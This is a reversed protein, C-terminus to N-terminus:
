LDPQESLQALVMTILKNSILFDDVDTQVILDQNESNLVQTIIHPTTETINQDKM